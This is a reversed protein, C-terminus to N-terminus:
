AASDDGLIDARLQVFERRQLMKDSAGNAPYTVIEDNFFM